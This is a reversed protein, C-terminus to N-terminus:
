EEMRREYDLQRRLSEIEDPDADRDPDAAYDYRRRLREHEDVAFLEGSDYPDRYYNNMSM